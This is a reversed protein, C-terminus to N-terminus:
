PGVIISTSWTGIQPHCTTFALYFKIGAYVYVRRTRFYSHHLRSMQRLEENYIWEKMITIVAWCRYEFCFLIQIHRIRDMSSLFLCFHVLLLAVACAALGLTATCDHCTPLLQKLLTIFFLLFFILFCWNVAAHRPATVHAVATATYCSHCFPLLFLSFSSLFIDVLCCFHSETTACSALVPSIKDFINCDVPLRNCHLTM